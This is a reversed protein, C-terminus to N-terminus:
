EANKSANPQAKPKRAAAPSGKRKVYCTVALVVLVIALLYLLVLSGFIFFVANYMKLWYDFVLGCIILYAYPIALLLVSKGVLAGITKNQLFFRFFPIKLLKKLLSM